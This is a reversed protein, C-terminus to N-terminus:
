QLAECTMSNQEQFSYQYFHLAAMQSIIQILLEDYKKFQRQISSIVIDGIIEEKEYIPCAMMSKTKTQQKQDQDFRVDQYFDNINLQQGQKIVFGLIGKFPYYIKQQNDQGYELVCLNRIM